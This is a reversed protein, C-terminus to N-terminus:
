DVRSPIYCVRDLRNPLTPPLGTEVIAREIELQIRQDVKPEKKTSEQIKDLNTHSGSVRKPILEREQFIARQAIIKKRLIKTFCNDM